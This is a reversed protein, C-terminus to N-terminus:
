SKGRECIKGVMSKREQTLVSEASKIVPGNRTLMKTKTKKITKKMVKKTQKTRYQLSLKQACIFRITDDDVYM